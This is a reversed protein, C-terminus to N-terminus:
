LDWMRIIYELNKMADDDSLAIILENLIQTDSMGAEKIKELMEWKDM